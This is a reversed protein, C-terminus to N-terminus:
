YFTVLFQCTRPPKYANSFYKRFSTCFLKIILLIKKKQLFSTYKCFFASQKGKAVTELFTKILIWGDYIM